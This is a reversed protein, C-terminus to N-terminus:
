WYLNANDSWISVALYGSKSRPSSKLIIERCKKFSKVRGLNSVFYGSYNNIPKWIEGM